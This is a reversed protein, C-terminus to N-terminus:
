LDDVVGDGESSDVQDVARGNQVDFRPKLVAVQGGALPGVVPASHGQKM